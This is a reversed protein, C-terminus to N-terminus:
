PMGFPNDETFDIISDAETEFIANDADNENLGDTAVTVVTVVDYVAGSETGVVRKNSDSSVYFQRFKDDSTVHAVMAIQGATTGSSEWNAVEGEINIPDSSGDNSGTWQTVTEGIIFDGSGSGLTYTYITAFRREISDIEDIGTDLAEDSYEFLEAQLKYVPLNQLQYFPQEHEVFKIEFLSKSMPLYILDGEMPRQTTLNTGIQREWRSKAVIFTAQDRIELGFKSLLDGDGEFSDVNEIYMEVQWADEFKSYEENLIQDDSISVRPIYFVDQGYMSISEIILDEYMNQESKVAGNFYVNTAM